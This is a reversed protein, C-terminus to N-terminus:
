SKEKEGEGDDDDDDDGNGERDHRPVHASQRTPVVLCNTLLGRSQAVVRPSHVHDGERFDMPCLSLEVSDQGEPAPLPVPKEHTPSGPVVAAEEHQNALAYQRIRGLHACLNDDIAPNYPM